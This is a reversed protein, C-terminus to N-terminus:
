VLIPPVSAPLAGELHMEFNLQRPLFPATLISEFMTWENGETDFKLFDIHTHKLTSMVQALSQFNLVVNADKQNVDKWTSGIHQSASEDGICIPQFTFNMGKVSAAEATITCDFAFVQCNMTAMRQEFASDLSIGVGYVICAKGNTMDIGTMMTKASEGNGRQVMTPPFPLPQIDSFHCKPTEPTCEGEKALGAVLTAKATELFPKMAMILTKWESSREASTSATHITKATMTPLTEALFLDNDLFKLRLLCVLLLTLSVILIRRLTEMMTGVSSAARTWKKRQKQQQQQQSITTM